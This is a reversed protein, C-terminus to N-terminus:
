IQIFLNYKTIRFDKVETESDYEKVIEAARYGHCNDYMNAPSGDFVLINVDGTVKSMLWHLKM